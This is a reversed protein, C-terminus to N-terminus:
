ASPRPLQALTHFLKDIELPKEFVACVRPLPPISARAAATFVIIPVDAMARHNELALATLFMQGDMVPMMLDLLICGPFQSPTCDRLLDLARQGHEASLVAYGEDALVEALSERIDKDDDILLINPLM